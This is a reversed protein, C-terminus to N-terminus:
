TRLMRRWGERGGEERCAEQRVRCSSRSGSSLRCNTKSGNSRQGEGAESEGGANMNGRDWVSQKDTDALWGAAQRCAAQNLPQTGMPIPDPTQHSHKPTPTSRHVMEKGGERDWGRERGWAGESMTRGKEGVKRREM